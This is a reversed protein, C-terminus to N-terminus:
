KGADQDWVFAAFPLEGSASAVVADGAPPKYTSGLIGGVPLPLPQLITLYVDLWEGYKPDRLQLCNWTNCDGRQRAPPEEARQQRLEHLYQLEGPSRWLDISVEPAAWSLRRRAGMLAGCLAPTLRLHCESRGDGRVRIQAPMFPARQAARIRLYPTSIVVGSPQGDKVPTAQVIIGGTLNVMKFARVKQGNAM